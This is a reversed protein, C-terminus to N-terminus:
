VNVPLWLHTQENERWSIGQKLRTDYFAMDLSTRAGIRWNLGLEYSGSKEPNLDPNGSLPYYLDNFTPARFGTAYSSRLVLDPLIEYSAGLNYTAVNGFQSNHDYRIGGDIRLAEYELSYQGFVAALDRSTEDYAVTTNIEERYAEVGVTVTHGVNRTDFSKETSGFVGYRRTEFRDSGNVGKRFNRSNDIGTSFELTSSWDASHDIRTGI